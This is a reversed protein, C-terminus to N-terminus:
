KANKSPPPVRVIRALLERFPMRPTEPLDKDKTQKHKM